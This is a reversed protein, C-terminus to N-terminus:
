IIKFYFIFLNFLTYFLCDFISKINKVALKIYKNKYNTPTTLKNM